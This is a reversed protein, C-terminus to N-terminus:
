NLNVPAKYTAKLMNLEKLFCRELTRDAAQAENAIFFSHNDCFSALPYFIVAVNRLNFLLFYDLFNTPVKFPRLLEIGIAMVTSTSAM